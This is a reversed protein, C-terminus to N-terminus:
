VPQSARAIRSHIRFEGAEARSLTDVQTLAGTHQRRWELMGGTVTIVKSSALELSADCELRWRGDPYTGHRMVLPGSQDLRVPPQPATFDCFAWSSPAASRHLGPLRSLHNM